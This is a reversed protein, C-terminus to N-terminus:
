PRSFRARRPRASAYARLRAHLAPPPPDHALSRAQEALTLTNGTIADEVTSLQEHLEKVYTQCTKQYADVTTFADPLTHNWANLDTVVKSRDDLQLRHQNGGLRKLVTAMVLESELLAMLRTGPAHQCPEGVRATFRKGAITLKITEGPELPREPPEPLEAETFDNSGDYRILYGGKPRPKLTACRTAPLDDLRIDVREPVRTDPAVVSSHGCGM